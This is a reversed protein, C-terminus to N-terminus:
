KSIQSLYAIKTGGYNKQKIINFGTFDVEESYEVVIIGGKVLKLVTEYIGSQYPPDIFIIDM